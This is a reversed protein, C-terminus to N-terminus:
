AQVEHAPVLSLESTAMAAAIMRNRNKHVTRSTSLVAKIREDLSETRRIIEYMRKVNEYESLTLRSRKGKITVIVSDSDQYQYFLFSENEDRVWKRFKNSRENIGQIFAEAEEGDLVTPKTIKVYRQFAAERLGLPSDSASLSYIRVM